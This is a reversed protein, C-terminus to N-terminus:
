LTRRASCSPASATKEPEALPALLRAGAARGECLPAPLLRVGIACALDEDLPAPDGLAEMRDGSLAVASTADRALQLITPPLGGAPDVL